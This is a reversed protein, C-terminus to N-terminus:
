KLHHCPDSILVYGCLGCYYEEIIVTTALEKLKDCEQRYQRWEEDTAPNGMLRQDLENLKQRYEERKTM